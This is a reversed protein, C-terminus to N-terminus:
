LREAFTLRHGENTGVTFERFGWPKDEIDNRFVAGRAKCAGYYDNVDDLEVRLISSHNNIEEALVEEPCHGAMISMPGLTFWRWGEAGRDEIEFGLVDKYYQASADLDKVAIVHSWSIVQM